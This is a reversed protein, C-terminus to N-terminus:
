KFGNLYEVTQEEWEGPKLTARYQNITLFQLKSVGEEALPPPRQFMMASLSQQRQAALWGLRERIATEIHNRLRPEHLRNKAEQEWCAWWPPKNNAVSEKQEVEQIMLPLLGSMNVIKVSCAGYRIGALAVRYNQTILESSLGTQATPWRTPGSSTDVNFANGVTPCIIIVEPHPDADEEYAEPVGFLPAPVREEIRTPWHVSLSINQDLTRSVLPYVVRIVTKPLFLRHAQIQDYFTIAQPDATPFLVVTQVDHKTLDIDVTPYQGDHDKRVRVTHNLVAAMHLSETDILGRLDFRHCDRLNLQRYTEEKRANPTSPPLLDKKCNTQGLPHPQTFEFYTKNAHTATSIDLHQNVNGILKHLTRCTQRLTIRAESEAYYIIREIIHPYATHDIPVVVSPIAAPPPQALM